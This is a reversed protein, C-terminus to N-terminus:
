RQVVAVLGELTELVTRGAVDGAYFDIQKAGGVQLRQHLERVARDVERQRQRYAAQRDANNRHIRPRGM